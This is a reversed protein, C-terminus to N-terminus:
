RGPRIAKLSYMLPLSGPGPWCRGRAGERPVLFSHQSDLTFAWEHFLELQLGAGLLASIVRSVPHIWEYSVNHVTPLTPDAYSGPEDLVTAETAFYDRVPVPDDEGLADAVPHLESLYLYGGPVLLDRVVEAWRELDPLWLLAGKGTYVVDFGANGVAEAAHYVDSLVFRARDALHLERALRAAADVAPASFDVGTVEVTPHLRAIDLTDLGFHCQLHVLRLGDLPGLEDIEFGLLAPRGAKFEEVRYFDSAMHLPVREDWLDRNTALWDDV